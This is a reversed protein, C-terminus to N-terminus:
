APERNNVSATAGIERFRQVALEGRLLHREIDPSMCKVVVEGNMQAATVKELNLGERINAWKLSCARVM